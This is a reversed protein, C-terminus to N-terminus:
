TKRMKKKGTSAMEYRRETVKGRGDKSFTWVMEYRRQYGERKWGKFM